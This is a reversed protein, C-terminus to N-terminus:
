GTLISVNHYASVADLSEQRVTLIQLFVVLICFALLMKSECYSKSIPMIKKFRQTIRQHGVEEVHAEMNAPKNLDKVVLPTITIKGINQRCIKTPKYHWSTKSAELARSFSLINV